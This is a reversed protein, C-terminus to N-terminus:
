GNDLASVDPAQLDARTLFRIEMWHMAAQPDEALPLTEDGVTVSLLPSQGESMRVEFSFGSGATGRMKLEDYRTGGLFGATPLMMVQDGTELALYDIGSRLLKRLLDGSFTWEFAAGDRVNLAQLLLTNLPIFGDAASAGEQWGILTPVFDASTGNRRLSLHQEEGSIVLTSMSATSEASLKWIGVQDYGIESQYKEKAHPAASRGGGGGGPRLPTPTISPGPTELPMDDEELDTGPTELSIASDDPSDVADTIVPEELWIYVTIKTDDDGASIGPTATGPATESVQVTKKKAKPLATKDVKFKFRAVDGRRIGTIKLTKDKCLYVTLKAKADTKGEDKLWAKVITSLNGSVVTGDAATYWAQNKRIAAWDPEAAHASAALFLILLLPLLLLPRKKM